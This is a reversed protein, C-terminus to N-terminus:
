VLMESMTLLQLERKESEAANVQHFRLPRM